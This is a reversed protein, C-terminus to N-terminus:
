FIQSHRVHRKYVTGKKGNEEERHKQQFEISRDNLESIRAEVSDLNKEYENM